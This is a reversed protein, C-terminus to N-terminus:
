VVASRFFKFYVKLNVMAVTFGVAHDMDKSNNNLHSFMIIMKVFCVNKFM